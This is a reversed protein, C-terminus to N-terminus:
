EDGHAGAWMSYLAFSSEDRAHALGGGGGGGGGSVGNGGGGSSGLAARERAPQRARPPSGPVPGHGHGHAKKAESSLTPADFRAGLVPTTARPLAPTEARLRSGFKTAAATAAATPPSLPSPGRETPKSSSSSSPSLFTRTPHALPQPSDADYRFSRTLNPSSTLQGGQSSEVRSPSPPRSPVLACRMRSEADAEDGDEDEGEEDDSAPARGTRRRENLEELKRAAVERPEWREIRVFRDAFM